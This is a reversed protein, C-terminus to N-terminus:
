NDENLYKELVKFVGNETNAPAIYKAHEKVKQMGNAMAYSYKAFDLMAIDNGGDGFAILDDGTLGLKGLLHKIGTGKNVGALTIDIANSASAFATIEQDHSQNFKTEIKKAESSDMNFTIQLIHDKPLDHWDDIVASKGAFYALFDRDSASVESNLYSVVDELVMTPMVGYEGHVQKILLLINQRSIPYVAVAKGNIILRAGNLTVFDMRKAFDGFDQQLRAYPRGSAIIFHIGRKEFEDLLHAFQHHNYQKRDDLFTGDMDVAIAKFPLTM